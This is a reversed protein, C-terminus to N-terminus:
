HKMKYDLRLGTAPRDGLEQDEDNTDIIGATTTFTGGKWKWPKSFLLQPKRQGMNGGRYNYGFNLTGPGAESIFNWCQGILVKWDGHDVAVYAQRLRLETNNDNSDWFDAELKGSVKSKEWQAGQLKFGFRSQKASVTFKGDCSKYPSSVQLHEADNTAYIADGKLYGYFGVKVPSKTEVALGTTSQEKKILSIEQKLSQVQQELHQLQKELASDDAWLPFCSLSFLIALRITINKMATSHFPITKPEPTHRYQPLLDKATM